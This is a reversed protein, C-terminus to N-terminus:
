RAELKAFLPALANEAIFPFASENQSVRQIRPPLEDPLQRYDMEFLPLESHEARFEHLGSMEKPYWVDLGAALYEFVKNPVNHIFNLTNGKYLVLGVDFQRLLDPLDDYDCGRPDLTINEADLKGLAVWADSAINDSVVHLSALGSRKSVWSAIELIFADELSASGVYILRMQGLNHVRTGAAAREVWEAPPYNPLVQAVDDSISPNWERLLKLREANTESIWEARKFLNGQELRRTSRLIRMGAALYDEPAYYEHHHIFLRAKGGFVNYYIWAALASHPEIAIIADPRWSAIESAARFHWSTHGLMRLPLTSSPKTDSLRRIEVPPHAWQELSRRNETTWTRVVWNEHRAILTLTNRAPPYYEVPLVHLFAIKM